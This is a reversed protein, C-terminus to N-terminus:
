GGNAVWGRTDQTYLHSGFLEFLTNERFFSTLRKRCDPGCKSVERAKASVAATTPATVRWRWCDHRVTHPFYSIEQATKMDRFYSEPSRRLSRVRHHAIHLSRAEVGFLANRLQADHPTHVNRVWM